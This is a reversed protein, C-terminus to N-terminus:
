VTSRATFSQSAKPSVLALAFVTAVHVIRLLLWTM